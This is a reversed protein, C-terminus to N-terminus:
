VGDQGVVHRQQQRGPLHAVHALNGLLEGRRLPGRALIGPPPLGVFVRAQGVRRTVLEADAPAAHRDDAEGVADDDGGDQACLLRGTVSSEVASTRPSSGPRAKLSSTLESLVSSSLRTASQSASTSSWTRVTTPRASKAQGSVPLMAMPAM